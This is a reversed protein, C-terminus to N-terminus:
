LNSVIFNGKQTEDYLEPLFMDATKNNEEETGIKNVRTSTVELEFFKPLNYIISFLLIPLIYLNAPCNLSIQLFYFKLEKQIANLSVLYIQNL